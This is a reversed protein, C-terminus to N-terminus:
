ITKAVAEGSSFLAVVAAQKHWCDMRQQIEEVSTIGCVQVRTM